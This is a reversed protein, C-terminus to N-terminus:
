LPLGIYSIIRRLFKLCNAWVNTSQRKNRRKDKEYPQPKIGDYLHALIKRLLSSLSINGSLGSQTAMHANYFLRSIDETREATEYRTTPNVNDLAFFALVSQSLGELIGNIQSNILIGRNIRLDLLNEEALKQNVIVLNDLVTKQLKAQLDFSNLLNVSLPQNLIRSNPVVTTLLRNYTESQAVNPLYVTNITNVINM